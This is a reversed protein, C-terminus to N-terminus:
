GDIVTLADAVDARETRFGNVPHSEDAYGLSVACVVLRDEPLDFFDRVHGSYVAIAAQPITAVGRERAATLLNAVYGGCDIAGYTGQLRDTTIVAVHPAGFFAYNRLM